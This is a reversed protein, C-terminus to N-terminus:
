KSGAEQFDKPSTGKGSDGEPPVTRGATAAAYTTQGANSGPNTSPQTVESKDADQPKSGPDETTEDNNGATSKPIPKQPSNVGITELSPGVNTDEEKDEELQLVAYPNNNDVKTSSTTSSPSSNSSAQNSSDSSSDKVPSFFGPLTKALLDRPSMKNCVNQKRMEKQAKKNAKKKKKKKKKRDEVEQFGQDDLDAQVDPNDLDLGAAAYADAAFESMEGSVPKEKPPSAETKGLDVNELDDTDDSFYEMGMEQYEKILKAKDIESQTKIVHKDGEQVIRDKLPTPKDVNRFPKGMKSDDPGKAFTVALEGKPTDTTTAQEKKPSEPRSRPSRSKSKARRRIAEPDPPNRNVSPLQIGQEAAQRRTLKPQTQIPPPKNKKTRKKSKPSQASTTTAVTPITKQRSEDAIALLQQTTPEKIKPGKPAPKKDDDSEESDTFHEMGDDDRKPESLMDVTQKADASLMDVTVNVRGKGLRQEKHRIKKAGETYIEVDASDESPREEIPPDVIPPDQPSDPRANLHVEDYLDSMDNETLESLDKGTIEKVTRGTKILIEAGFQLLAIGEPVPFRNRGAPRSREENTPAQNARGTPRSQDRNTSTRNTQNTQEEESNTAESDTFDEGESHSSEQEESSSSDSEIRESDESDTFDEMDDIMRTAFAEIRANGSDSNSDSEEDSSMDEPYDSLGPPSDQLHFGIDLRTRSAEHVTAMIKDFDIGEEEYMTKTEKIGTPRMKHVDAEITGSKDDDDDFIYEAQNVETKNAETSAYDKGKQFHYKTVVEKVNGPLADWAQKESDSLSHWTEKDMYAKRPGSQQSENATRKQNSTSKSKDGGSKKTGSNRNGKFRGDSGRTFTNNAELIEALTPDEDDSVEHVNAEYEDDSDDFQVDHTKASRRYSGRTRTNSNDYVQAQDTLLTVYEDFTIDVAKKGAAKLAQRQLQLVSALNPVNAVVNQLLRVKHTDSFRADPSMENYKEMTLSYHSLFAVQGKTWNATDLRVSTLYASLSDATMSTTISDDYYECLEKWILRTNKDEKHSRIILKAQPHLFNDLLIKYFFQMKAKDTDADAVIHHEDIVDYMNQAKLTTITHEKLEVWQTADRFTKYERSNPKINKNWNVLAENTNAKLAWSAIPKNHDYSYTRFESFDAKTYKLINIGTKERYSMEHYFALLARLQLCMTPQLPIRLAEGPPIYNLYMLSDATLHVFDTNFGRAGADKLSLYMPHSPVDTHAIGFFTKLVNKMRVVDKKYEVKAARAIDAATPAASTGATSAM